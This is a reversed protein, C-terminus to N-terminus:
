LLKMLGDVRLGSHLIVFCLNDEKVEAPDTSMLFIDFVRKKIFLKIFVEDGQM